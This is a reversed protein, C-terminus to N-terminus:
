TKLMSRRYDITRRLKHLRRESFPLQDLDPIWIESRELAERIVRRVAREPLRVAAGLAVFDATTPDGATRGNIALAMSTDDYLYTSPLDYAPAVRTEGDPGTLVSFNKAHADGNGTIYAFMLQAVLDRAAVRPATCLNALATFVTETSVLYKDAPPRGLAQCADEVALQRATDGITIRDFRRILLGASGDADRVLESDVVPLGCRRAANLFFAENEVVHPFEPPNLKLLYRTGAQTVPLNLMAVSTKDQVGPLAVRDPAIGLESLLTHFRIDAFDTVALRSHAATPSAGAPVVSVDGIADSGVALLLSLEDDASTKIARRLAGLRRGEPLLGSFYAPLAGGTRTVPEVEVPLTSAVPARRAKVWDDEYRFEVGASTRRLTAALDGGKYVDAVEVSRLEPLSTERLPASSM